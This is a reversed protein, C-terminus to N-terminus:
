PNTQAVRAVLWASGFCVCGDMVQGDDFGYRTFKINWYRRVKADGGRGKNVLLLLVFVGFELVILGGM